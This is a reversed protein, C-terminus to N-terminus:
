FKPQDRPPKAQPLDERNSQAGRITADIWTTFASVRTYYEMVGYRGELGGTAESDQASSIGVLYNIGGVWLFAPGGSDGPGSVGELVTARGSEPSDFEFALHLDGVESIRNTAARLVGDDLVPGTLGSGSMGRGVIVITQGAEDADRYIPAPVVGVPPSALQVLALDHLEEFVGTWGPHIHVAAVSITHKGIHATGPADGGATAHAATLVWRDSVLTGEAIVTGTSDQFRLQVVPAGYEVALREFAVSLRDHRVVIGAAFPPAAAITYFLAAAAAIGIRPATDPM